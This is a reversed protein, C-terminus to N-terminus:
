NDRELLSDIESLRKLLREKEALLVTKEDIAHYTVGKPLELVMSSPVEAVLITGEEWTVRPNGRSGGSEKFGGSAVYTGDYLRVASDRFPRKALILGKFAICGKDPVDDLGDCNDLDIEIETTEVPELGEGYINILIDNLRDAHKGDFSWFPKEWKGNLEHAKNIFRRDYRCNVKIKGDERLIEM